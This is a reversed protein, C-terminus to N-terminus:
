QTQEIQHVAQIAGNVYSPVSPSKTPEIQELLISVTAIADKIDRVWYGKSARKKQRDYLRPFALGVLPVGVSACEYVTNYGAGGLVIDAAALCEIGPHHSVWLTEPSEKPCNPALIRVACDPFNQHLQLALQGFISLESTQGAACVLITKVPQDIRLIHSRVIGKDPLEWDNRMLWPATHQVCPLDCFPLDKGEGPVIVLDFNEVVFSRLGKVTIYHPNIDRHILIRPIHHMQPLIDALEGGLGRPFTDIILRDCKNLNRFIERVYECTQSFGADDPIWHVLCGEHSIQPAYPSNTIIRVKRQKAAIRGLSLARTLHGWGGGLAYILWEKTM